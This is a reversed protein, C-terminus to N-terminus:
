LMAEPNTDMLEINGMANNITAQVNSLVRLSFNLQHEYYHSDIELEEIRDKLEQNEQRLEEVEELLQDYERQTMSKVM